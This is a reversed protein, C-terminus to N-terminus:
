YPSATHQFCIGFVSLAKELHDTTFIRKDGTNIFNNSFTASLGSDVDDLIVFNEVMDKANDLWAKIEKYRSGKHPTQDIIM